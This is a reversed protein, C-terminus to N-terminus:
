KSAPAAVPTPAVVEALKSGESVPAGEMCFINVTGDCPAYVIHEMKMAELIALADGKKVQQGDKVHLKVIKGPMPSTVLPNNSGSGAGLGTSTDLPPLKFQYHTPAQDIQGYIWCDLTKLGEPTIQVCVTGLKQEGGPITQIGIQFSLSHVNRDSTHISLTQVSTVQGSVSKVASEQGKGAVIGLTYQDGQQEISLKVKEEGQEATVSRTVKRNGGRYDALEGSKQGWISGAKSTVNVEKSTLKLAEMYGIMSLQVHIPLETLPIPHLANLIGEMHHEFFATTPQAKAFGPHQVCKILFDM